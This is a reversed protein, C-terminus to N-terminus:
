KKNGTKPNDNQPKRDVDRVNKKWEDKPCYNYGMNLYSETKEESVRIIENNKKMTKM